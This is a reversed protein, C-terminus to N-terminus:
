SSASIFCGHTCACGPVTAKVANANPSNWVQGFDYGTERVNGVVPKLECVRVDGNPELVGIRKGALCPKTLAGGRLVNIWTGYRADLGQQMEEPTVQSGFKRKLYHKFVPQAQRALDEFANADVLSYNPDLASGRVPTFTHIDVWLNEKVWNMLPLVDSLNQDTVVTNMSISFLKEKNRLRRLRIRKLANISAVVNSFANAHNHTHNHVEEGGELSFMIQLTMESSFNMIAEAFEAVRQPFSGNTPLFINRVHNTEHFARCIELLDSRVLPEGGSIWLRDIRGLSEAVHKIEDLSMEQMDEALTEHYYCFKCSHNCRNTVSFILEPLETKNM